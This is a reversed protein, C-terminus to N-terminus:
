NPATINSRRPVSKLSTPSAKPIRAKPSLQLIERQRGTLQEVPTKSGAAIKQLPFKKALKASIERSLYIEGAMVRRLASELEAEAAMKLLYGAAGAKLARWYHEEDHHGSLIIVRVEPFEETIRTAAELGNLGPMTIDMLVADPRQTALLGIVERGDCAEGVVEVASLRQLLARIGARVLAHDDALVVRVLKAPKNM